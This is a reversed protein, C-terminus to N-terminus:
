NPDHGLARATAEATAKIIHAAKRETTQTRDLAATVVRNELLNLRKSRREKGIEIKFESLWFVLNIHSFRVSGPFRPSWHSDLLHKGDDSGSQGDENSAGEVQDPESKVKCLLQSVEEDSRRKRAKEKEAREQVAEQKRTMERDVGAIYGVRDAKMAAYFQRDEELKIMKMAEIHGIDFTMDLEATFDLRRQIYTESTRSKDKKLALFRNYIRLLSETADKVETTPIAARKWFTLLYEVTLRASERVPKRKGVHEFMFYQLVQRLTPLKNCLISSSSAGILWDSPSRRTTVKRKSMVRYGVSRCVASGNLNFLSYYVM